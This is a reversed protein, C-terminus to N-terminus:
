AARGGGVDSDGSGPTGGPNSTTGPTKFEGTVPLGANRLIDIFTELRGTVTFFAIFLLLWYMTYAPM